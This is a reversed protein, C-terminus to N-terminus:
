NIGLDIGGCSHIRNGKGGYPDLHLMSLNKLGTRSNENPIYLLPWDLLCEPSFQHYNQEGARDRAGLGINVVCAGQSRARCLHMIKGLPSEELKNEHLDECLWCVSSPCAQQTKLCVSNQTNGPIAQGYYPLRTCIKCLCKTIFSTRTTWTQLTLDLLWVWMQNGDNFGHIYPAGVM